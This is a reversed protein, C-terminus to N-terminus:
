KLIHSIIKGLKKYHSFYNIQLIENAKITNFKKNRAGYNAIYIKENKDLIYHKCIAGAVWYPKATKNNLMGSSLNCFEKRKNEDLSEIYKLLSLSITKLNDYYFTM